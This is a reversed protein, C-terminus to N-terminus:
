WSWEGDHYLGLMHGVEHGLINRFYDLEQTFKLIGFGDTQCVSFTKAAGYVGHSQDWITDFDGRFFSIERRFLVCVLPTDNVSAICCCGQLCM